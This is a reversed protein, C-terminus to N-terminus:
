SLLRERFNDLFEMEMKLYEKEIEISRLGESRMKQITNSIEQSNNEINLNSETVSIETEIITTNEETTNEEPIDEIPLAINEEKIEEQQLDAYEIETEDIVINEEIIINEETINEIQEEVPIEEQQLDAYEIETEDIVINEETINEIQEEVPIEEQQLDAYEVEMENIMNDVENEVSETYEEFDTKVEINERQPEINETQENTDTGLVGNIVDLIENYELSEKENNAAYEKIKTLMGALDHEDFFIDILPLSITGSGLIEQILKLPYLLDVIEMKQTINFLIDNAFDVFETETLAEKTNAIDLLEAKLSGIINRNDTIFNFEEIIDEIKREPLIETNRKYLFMSLCKAPNILFFLETQIANELILKTQTEDFEIWDYLIENLREADKHSYLQYSIYANKTLTKLINKCCYDIEAFFFQRINDNFCEVAAIKKANFPFDTEEVSNWKETLIDACIKQFM